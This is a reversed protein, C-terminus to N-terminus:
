REIVAASATPTSRRKRSLSTIASSIKESSIPPM